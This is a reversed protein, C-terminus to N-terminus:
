YDIEEEGGSGGVGVTHLMQHQEEFPVAKLVHLTVSSHHNM